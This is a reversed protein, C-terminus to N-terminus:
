DDNYGEVSKLLIEAVSFNSGKIPSPPPFYRSKKVAPRSPSHCM